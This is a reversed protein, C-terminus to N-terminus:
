HVYLIDATLCIFVGLNGSKNKDSLLTNMHSNDSLLFMHWDM